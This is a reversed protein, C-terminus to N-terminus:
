TLCRKLAIRGVDVTRNVFVACNPRRNAKLREPSLEDPILELRGEPAEITLPLSKELARPLAKARLRPFTTPVAGDGFALASTFPPPVMALASRTNVRGAPCRVM